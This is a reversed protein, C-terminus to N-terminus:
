RQPHESIVWRRAEMPQSVVTHNASHTTTTNQGRAGPRDERLLAAREAVTLGGWVGYPEQVSLAHRRCAQIVPCRSCIAKARRDRDEKAAGREREPHFFTTSDVNRCAADIQWDWVDTVPPPLRRSVKVM